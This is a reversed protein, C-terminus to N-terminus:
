NIPLLFGCSGKHGRRFILDFKGFLLSCFACAWAAISRAMNGKYDGM